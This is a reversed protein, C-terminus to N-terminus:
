LEMAGAAQGKLQRTLLIGGKQAQSTLSGVPDKMSEQFTATSIGMWRMIKNPIMDILKFSATALMYCIVTYMATFFFVDVSSGAAINLESNGINGYDLSFDHGSVNSVVIGFVLNLVWVLSSFTALSAMMGTLILIPRLFIELLLGYGNIAGPGMLGEGDIRLHALAWLPMAVMAEFIGKVWGSVAFFFYMFPMFPLVYYLIFAIVAAITVLSTFLGEVAAVGPDPKMGAAARGINTLKAGLSVSLNKTLADMMGRGLSSLQALPHVDRNKRMEFIGQTGLLMNVTDIFANGTEGAHAGTNVVLSANVINKTALISKFIEGDAINDFDLVLNVKEPDNMIRSYLFDGSANSNQSSNAEAVLHLLYPVKSVQAINDAAHTMSGNMKAIKNYWLAAGAWGRRLLTELGEGDHEFAGNERQEEIGDDLAEVFDDLYQVVKSRVFEALFKQNECNGAGSVIINSHEQVVCKANNAIMPDNWMAKIINYYRDQMLQAGPEFVDMSPITLEGCLPKVAGKYDKFNEDINGDILPALEGFVITVNGHASFRLAEIYTSNSGNAGAFGRTNPFNNNMGPEQVGAPLNSTDPRVLYPNIEFNESGYYEEQASEYAARCTHMVAMFQFLSEVKSRDFNPVAIINGSQATFRTVTEENNAAVMQNYYIWGNTALNSGAKVVYMLILQASNLGNAHTGASNGSWTGGTGIPLLLGFFLILRVPAWTSNARQGFPSGAVATESVLAVVYYIIILVGVAFIGMSYFQFMKHLSVHFSWPYAAARAPMEQGDMYYCPSGNGICSGFFGNGQSDTLGFIQDLLIAALDDNRPGGVGAFDPNVSLIYNFDGGAAYLPQGLFLSAFFLGIQGLIMTVCLLSVGYICVQDIHSRTFKLNNGAAAIVKIIGYKGFNERRLYAHDKPLLGVMEYIVAILFAAHAFGESFLAFLRPLIGPLITYKAIQWKTM